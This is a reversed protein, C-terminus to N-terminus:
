SGKQKKSIDDDNIEKVKNSIEPGKKDIKGFDPLKITPKDKSTLDNFFEKRDEPELFEFYLDAAGKDKVDVHPMAKKNKNM